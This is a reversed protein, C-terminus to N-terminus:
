AELEKWTRGITGCDSMLELGRSMRRSDVASPLSTWHWMSWTM